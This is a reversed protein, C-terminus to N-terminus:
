KIMSRFFRQDHQTSHKIIRNKCPKACKQMLTKHTEHRCAQLVLGHVTRLDGTNSKPTPPESTCTCSQLINHCLFPHHAWAMIYQKDAYSPHLSSMYCHFRVLLMCVTVCWRHALCWSAKDVSCMLFANTSDSVPNLINAM